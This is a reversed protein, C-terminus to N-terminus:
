NENGTPSHKALGARLRDGSQKRQEDSMRRKGKRLLVQDARLTYFKTPGDGRVFIAGIRELKLQMVKDDSCVEWISRDDATMNLHTEQEGLTLEIM